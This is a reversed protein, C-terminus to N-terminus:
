DMITDSRGIPNMTALEADKELVDFGTADEGKAVKRTSSSHLYLVVSPVAFSLTVILIIVVFGPAWSETVLGLVLPVVMEGTASGVMIVSAVRGTLDVLSEALMFASPFVSAMGLGYVASGAWLFGESDSISNTAVALGMLLLCVGTLCLFLDGLLQTSPKFKLSLPIAIVRGVALSGWYVATLYQGEAETMQWTGNTAFLILFGGYGTDAGVYMGILLATLAIIQKSRALSPPLETDLAAFTSKARPPPTPVCAFLCSGIFAFSAFVNYAGELSTESASSDMSARIILPSLLTGVAFIAHLGQM